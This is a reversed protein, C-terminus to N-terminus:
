FSEDWELALGLGNGWDEGNIGPPYCDREHKFSGVPRGWQFRWPFRDYMKRESGVCNTLFLVSIALEGRLAWILWRKPAFHPLTKFLVTFLFPSSTSGVGLERVRPQSAESWDQRRAHCSFHPQGPGLIQPIPHPQTAPRPSGAARVQSQSGSSVQSPPRTCSKTSSLCTENQRQASHRELNSENRADNKM